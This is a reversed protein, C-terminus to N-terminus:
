ARNLVGRLEELSYPFPRRSHILRHCNPCLPILDREPCYARPQELLYLPEIHHVEIIDAQQGYLHLPDLGCAACRNGHISLCLFRNRRSRERRKYTSLTLAGEVDAQETSPPAEDYGILEAMAALIPVAVHGAVYEVAEESGHNSIASGVAEISFRGDKVLWDPGGQESHIDVTYSSPITGLLARATTVQEDNARGIQRICPGAYDGFSLKVKYRKLGYPSIACVPGNLSRFDTFHAAWGSRNGSRLEEVSVGTGVGRELTSQLVHNWRRM